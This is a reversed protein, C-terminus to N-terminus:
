DTELRVTNCIDYFGPSGFPAFHSHPLDKRMNFAAPNNWSHIVIQAAHNRNNSNGALYQSVDRGEGNGEGLDHDLFVADFADEQLYDIAAYASETITLSHKHLLEIFTSVRKGDDELILIKM